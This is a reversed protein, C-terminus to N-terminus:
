RLQPVRKDGILTYNYTANKWTKTRLKNLVGNQYFVVILSGVATLTAAVGTLIGPITQWSFNNKSEESKEDSM